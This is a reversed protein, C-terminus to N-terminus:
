LVATNNTDVNSIQVVCVVSQLKNFCESIKQLSNEINDIESESKQNIVAEQILNAMELYEFEPAM